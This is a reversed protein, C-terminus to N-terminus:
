VPVGYLPKIHCKTTCVVAKPVTPAIIYIM